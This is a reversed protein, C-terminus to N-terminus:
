DPSDSVCLPPLVLPEVRGSTPPCKALFEQFLKWKAVFTFLCPLDDGSKVQVMDDGTLSIREHSEVLVVNNLETRTTV